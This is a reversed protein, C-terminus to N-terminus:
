LLSKVEGFKKSRNLIVSILTLYMSLPPKSSKKM